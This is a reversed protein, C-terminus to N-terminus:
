KTWRYLLWATPM